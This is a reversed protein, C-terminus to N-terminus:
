DLAFSEEAVSSLTTDPRREACLRRSGVPNSDLQHNLGSAARSDADARPEAENRSNGAPTKRRFRTMHETGFDLEAEHQNHARCRLAINEVTHEYCRAWPVRHHFEIAERSECSRGDKSEFTCHGKDRAWVARRIAL